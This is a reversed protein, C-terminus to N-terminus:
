TKFCIPLLLFPYYMQGLLPNPPCTLNVGRLRPSLHIKTMSQNSYICYSNVVLCYTTSVIVSRYGSTNYPIWWSKNKCQNTSKQSDLVFLYQVTIATVRCIIELTTNHYIARQSYVFEWHALFVPPLDECLDRHFLGTLGWSAVWTRGRVDSALTSSLTRLGERQRKRANRGSSRRRKVKRMWEELQHVPSDNADPLIAKCGKQKPFTSQYAASMQFAILMYRTSLLISVYQNLFEKLVSVRFRELSSWFRPMLEMLPMGAIRFETMYTSARM